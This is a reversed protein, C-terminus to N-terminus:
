FYRSEWPTMLDVPSKVALSHDAFALIDRDIDLKRFAPVHLNAIHNGQVATSIMFEEEFAQIKMRVNTVTRGHMRVEVDDVEEGWTGHTSCRAVTGPRPSRVNCFELQRLWPALLAEGALKIYAEKYCFYTYFRRLKAEILLESSFSVRRGGQTICELDCHRSICRDHRGLEERTVTTGDLLVVKDVDYKMEWRETDSFVYDYIDVWGDFGESDITNAATDRENVSVIDVGVMISDQPPTPSMVNMIQNHPSYDHYKRGDWGVLAVLGNQHSVNFDIGDLVRGLDDVACPKGHKKHGKRGLCVDKWPIGLTKSVFLRKLLASGLSMKADAIFMKSKVIKQEEYSIHAMAEVAHPVDTIRAGEWMARTDLLWCVLDGDGDDDFATSFNHILPMAAFSTDLSLLHEKMKALISMDRAAAPSSSPIYCAHRSYQSPPRTVDVCSAPHLPHSCCSVVPTSSCDPTGTSLLLPISIKSASSLYAELDVELNPSPAPPRRSLIPRLIGTLIERRM